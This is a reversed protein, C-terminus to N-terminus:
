NPRWYHYTYTSSGGSYPRPKMTAVPGSSPQISFGDGLPDRPQIWSNDREPPPQVFMPPPPQAKQQQESASLTAHGSGYNTSLKRTIVDGSQASDRLIPTGGTNQDAGATTSGGSGSGGIFVMEGPPPKRGSGGANQACGSLGATGAAGAAAVRLADRRNMRWLGGQKKLAFVQPQTEATPEAVTEPPVAQENPQSM